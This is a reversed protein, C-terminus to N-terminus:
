FSSSYVPSGHKAVMCGEAVATSEVEEASHVAARAAAMSGVVVVVGMNGLGAM